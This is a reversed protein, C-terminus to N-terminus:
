DPRRRERTGKESGGSGGDGGRGRGRGGKDAAETGESSYEGSIESTM